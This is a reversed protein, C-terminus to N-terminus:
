FEFGFALNMHDNVFARPTYTTRIRRFEVGVFLPGSPRWEMHASMASNRLRASAAVDADHPDEMGYGAGVVITRLPRFNIQGWAGRSRILVADLGFLQGVGGGLVRAGRGDFAEGRIEVRANIPVVADVATVFGRALTDVATEFWGVHSGFGIEGATERAGWRARIRGELFPRGSREAVDFDPVEVTGVAAGTGPALVAGQVGVRLRQGVDYSGRIQPLRMWLNGAGAFEPYAVAALSLPDVGAVIPSAQGMLLAARTWQVEATATRLRVLPWTRGGSSPLQGGHFDVEMDGVFRGGLVRLTTARLGLSSQRMHMAMGRPNPDGPDDPRVFLPIGTSNVRRTNVFANVLVRGRLELSVRSRTRVVPETDSGLRAELARIREEAQQLRLRMSDTMTRGTDQRWAWATAPLCSMAIAVCLALERGRMRTWRTRTGAICARGLPMINAHIWSPLKSHM